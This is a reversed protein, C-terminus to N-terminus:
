TAGRAAALKVAMHGLGGLGIVGVRQGRAVKWHQMPSFTTIAPACCRRRRRSTRAPPIRIVFRETVVIRRIAASRTRGRSQDPAGYTFVVGNLCNQERDSLCSECTGCSSVMCGVGGVDGVKFKTVASGVAQVRGIIEHGPVCPYVGPRWESRVIHIDSHCIGCYLVDLLVDNPGVARRQIAVPALGSTASTAAIAKAPFPGQPARGGKPAASAASPVGALLSVSALGVGTRLFSRRGHDDPGSEHRADGCRTCM